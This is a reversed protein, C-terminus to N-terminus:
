RTDDNPECPQWQTWADQAVRRCYNALIGIAVLTIGAAAFVSADTSRVEFLPAALLHRSLAAGAAGVALGARIPVMGERLVMRVWPGPTSGLAFRISIDMERRVIAYSAAGYVGVSMLLLAVVAFCALLSAAFRRDGVGDRMLETMEVIQSVPLNPDVTEIERTVARGPM